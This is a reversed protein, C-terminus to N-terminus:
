RLGQMVYTEKLKATTPLFTTISMQVGTKDENKMFAVGLTYGLVEVSCATGIGKESLVDQLPEFLHSLELIIEENTKEMMGEYREFLRQLAHRSIIMQYSARGKKTLVRYDIVDLNHSRDSFVRTSDMRPNAIVLYNLKESKGCRVMSPFKAIMKDSWTKSSLREFRFNKIMAMFTQHTRMYEKNMTFISGSKQKAKLTLEKKNM